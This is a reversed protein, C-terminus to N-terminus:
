CFTTRVCNWIKTAKDISNTHREERWWLFTLLSAWIWLRLLSTWQCNVSTSPPWAQYCNCRACIVRSPKRPSDVTSPSHPLCRPPKPLWSVTKKPNVTLKKVASGRGRSVQCRADGGHAHANAARSGWRQLSCHPGRPPHVHNARQFM